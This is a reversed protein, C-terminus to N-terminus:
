KIDLPQQRCRLTLASTVFIGCIENCSITISVISNDRFTEAFETVFINTKVTFSSSGAM